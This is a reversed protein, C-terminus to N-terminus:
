TLTKGEGVVFIEDCLRDVLKKSGRVSKEAEVEEETNM